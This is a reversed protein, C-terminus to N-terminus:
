SCFACADSVPTETFCTPCVDGRRAPQRTSRRRDRKAQVQATLAPRGGDPPLLAGFRRYCELREEAAHQDPDAPVTGRVRQVAKAYGDGVTGNRHVCLASLIPEDRRACDDAVAGLVEGIWHWPLQKTRLGSREQVEEALEGYTIVAHYCRATELLRQRAERTWVTIRDTGGSTMTM